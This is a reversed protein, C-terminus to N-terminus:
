GAAREQEGRGALGLLVIAFFAYRGPRVSSTKASTTRAMYTPRATDFVQFGANPRSRWPPVAIVSVAEVVVPSATVGSFSLSAAPIMSLRTFAEPTASDSTEVWPLLLM